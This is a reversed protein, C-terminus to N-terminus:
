RAMRRRRALALLGGGLLLFTVPEPTGVFLGTFVASDGQYDVTLRANIQEGPRSGINLFIGDTTPDGVNTFGEALLSAVMSVARFYQTGVTVFPGNYLNAASDFNWLLRANDGGGGESEFFEFDHWGPALSVTATQGGGNAGGNFDTWAGDNITTLAGDVTLVAWDDNYDHFQVTRPDTPNSTGPTIYVQGFHRTTFNGMDGTYGTEPPYGGNVWAIQSILFDSHPRGGSALGLFEATSGAQYGFYWQSMVKNPVLASDLKELKWHVPGLVPGSPPGQAYAAGGITSGDILRLRGRPGPTDLPTATGNALSQIFSTPLVTNWMAADDIAGDMPWRYNGWGPAAIGIRWPTTGYPYGASGPTFTGTGQLAGDVYLNVVGTSKSVTEVVHHWAAPAYTSASTAGAWVNGTRWAEAVYTQGHDYRIGSHYGQREWVGYTALNNDGTGPPISNPKVWAALTYDGNTTPDLVSNSPLQLYQDAGGLAFSAAGGTHGSATYSVGGNASANFGRGSADQGLNGSNDFPFYAILGANAVSALAVVVTWVAARCRM